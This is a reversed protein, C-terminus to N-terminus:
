IVILRIGAAIRFGTAAALIRGLMLFGYIGTPRSMFAAYFGWRNIRRGSSSWAASVM